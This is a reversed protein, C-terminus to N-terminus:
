IDAHLAAAAAQGHMGNCLGRSLYEINRHEAEDCQTILSSLSLLSEPVEHKVQM